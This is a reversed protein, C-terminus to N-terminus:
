RMALRTRVVGTSKRQTFGNALTLEEITRRQGAAPLELPYRVKRRRM